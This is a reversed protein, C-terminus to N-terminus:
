SNSDAIKFSCNACLHAYTVTCACQTRQVYKSKSNSEEEAPSINNSM